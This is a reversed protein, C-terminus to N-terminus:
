NVLSEKIFIRKQDFNIEAKLGYPIIGRPHSHGFNVNYIIPLNYKKTVELLIEKYEEYYDENHPKGFMLANIEKFVGREAFKTLMEKFKKPNQWKSEVVEFFMIKGKWEENSPFLNYRSCIEEKDSYMESKARPEFTDYISEFCGGLLRGSITGTGRLVEYGHTEKHKVRPTGIANKTFDSREEYWYESSIIETEPQNNFLMEFTKKSYPLMNHDLESFDDFLCHGYFTTLGLKYFMLHNITPDSYGIFIKPNEKVANKFEEDELLFPLIQYTDGGGIATIIGKIEPDLFAKKLDSAKPEPNSELFDIGKLANPMFVPELGFEKIRKTALELEHTSSQEGIVGWSLSIIAVKDGPKLRNPKNM